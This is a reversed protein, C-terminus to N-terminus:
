VLRNRPEDQLFAHLNLVLEDVLRQRAERSGWACHPTVILNPLSENILPNGEVPPENTLVDVGAGAIQGQKLAKMLALEDVLGGRSVNILLASSKMRSIADADILNKTQPTLPCHLTVIDALPLLAKLPQRGPDPVVKDRLSEAILLNMGLGKAAQAVSKGIEGYGVILLNKGALEMIPHNLLCFFHNKSWLGQRVDRSFNILNTSLALILALTHQAVTASSYGRVNAVAVGLKRAAELDINNAGTAAVLILKLKTAAQLLEADIPIKNTIVVTADAIRELRQEPQTSPYFTWSELSLQLAETNLDGPAISDADLFVGKM